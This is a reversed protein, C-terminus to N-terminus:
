ALSTTWTQFNDTTLWIRNEYVSVQKVKGHSFEIKKWEVGTPKSETVGTRYVLGGSPTVGVIWEGSEAAIQVIEGEIVDWSDEHTNGRFGYDRYRVSNDPTTIWLGKLGASVTQYSPIGAEEEMWGDITEFDTKYNLTKGQHIAWIQKCDNSISIHSFGRGIHIWGNGRPKSATIDSKSYANREKTIGTAINECVSMKDLQGGTTTFTEDLSPNELGFSRALVMVNYDSRCAWVGAKGAAVWRLGPATVHVWVPSLDETESPCKMGHCTKTHSQKQNDDDKHSRTREQHGTGCSVSCQGFDSWERWQSDDEGDSTECDDKTIVLPVIVAVIVLAFVLVALVIIVIIKGDCASTNSPSDSKRKLQPDMIIGTYHHNSTDPYQAQTNQYNGSSRSNNNNLEIDNIDAYESMVILGLLTLFDILPTSIPIGFLSKDPM